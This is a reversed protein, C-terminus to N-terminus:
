DVPIRTPWATYWTAAERPLKYRMWLDVLFGGEKCGLCDMICRPVYVRLQGLQGAVNSTSTVAGGRCGSAYFIYQYALLTSACASNCCRKGSKEEVCGIPDAPIVAQGRVPYALACCPRLARSVATCHLKKPRHACTMSTISTFPPTPYSPYSTAGRMSIRRPQIGRGISTVHNRILGSFGLLCTLQSSNVTSNM